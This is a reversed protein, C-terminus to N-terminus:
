GATESSPLSCLTLPALSLMNNVLVLLGGRLPGPWRLIDEATLCDWKRPWRSTNIGMHFNVQSEWMPMNEVWMPMNKAKNQPPSVWKPMFITFQSPSASGRKPTRALNVLVIPDGGLLGAGAPWPPPGLSCLTQSPPCALKWTVPTARPSPAAESWPASAM